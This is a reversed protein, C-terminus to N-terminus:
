GGDEAVGLGAEAPGIAAIQVEAHSGQVRQRAADLVWRQFRDARGEQGEPQDEGEDIEEIRYRWVDWRFQGNKKQTLLDSM